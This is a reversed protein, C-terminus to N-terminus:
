NKIYNVIISIQAKVDPHYRLIATEYGVAPQSLTRALPPVVVGEKEVDVM